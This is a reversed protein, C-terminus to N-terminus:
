TLSPRQFLVAIATHMKKRVPMPFSNTLRELSEVLSRPLVKLVAELKIHGNTLPNTYLQIEQVSLDANKALVEIEDLHLLFIHGDSNPQFQVSEFQEPNACDSFKPLRNKFYGGNPTTMIVHGGPKVMKGIKRLFEDPTRSTNM